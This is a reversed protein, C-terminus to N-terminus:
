FQQIRKGVDFAWSPASMGATRIFLPM